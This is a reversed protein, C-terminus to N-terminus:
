WIFVVIKRITSITIYIITEIVKNNFPLGIYIYILINYM